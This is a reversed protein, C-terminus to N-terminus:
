LDVWHDKEFIQRQREHFIAHCIRINTLDYRVRCFEAFPEHREPALNEFSPTECLGCKVPNVYVTKLTPRQKMFLEYRSEHEGPHEEVGVFLFAAAALLLLSFFCCRSRRPETTTM